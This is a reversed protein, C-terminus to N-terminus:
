GAAAFSRPFALVHCRRWHLVAYELTVKTCVRISFDRSEILEFSEHMCEEYRQTENLNLFYRRVLHALSV